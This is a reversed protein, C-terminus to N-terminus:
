NPPASQARQPLVVRSQLWTDYDEKTMQVVHERVIEIAACLDPCCLEWPDLASLVKLFAQPQARLRSGDTFRALKELVRRVKPDFLAAEPLCSLLSPLWSSHCPQEMAEKTKSRGACTRHWDRCCRRDCLVQYRQISTEWRQRAWRELMNRLDLAQEQSKKQFAARMEKLVSVKSEIFCSTASPRTALSSKPRLPASELDAPNKSKGPFGLHPLYREPPWESDQDCENMEKAVSWYIENLLKQLYESVPQENEAEESDPFTLPQGEAPGPVLASLSGPTATCPSAVSLSSYPIKHQSFRHPNKRLGLKTQIQSSPPLRSFLVVKPQSVFRCWRTEIAKEKNAANITMRSRGPDRPDWCFSIPRIRSGPESTLAELLWSLCCLQRFLPEMAGSSQQPSTLSHHIPTFPRAAPMEKRGAHKWCCWSRAHHNIETKDSDWHQDLGSSPSCYGAHQTEEWRRHERQQVEQLDQEERQLLHFYGRGSRVASVLRRTHSLHRRLDTVSDRKQPRPLHFQLDHSGGEADSEAAGQYIEDSASPEDEVAQQLRGVSRQIVPKRELCLAERLEGAAVWGLARCGKTSAQRETRRRNEQELKRERAAEYAVGRARLMDVAM